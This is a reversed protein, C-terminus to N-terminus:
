ALQIGTGLGRGVIKEHLDRLSGKQRAEPNAMVGGM